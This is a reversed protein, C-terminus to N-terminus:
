DATVAVQFPVGLAHFHRQGCRAKLAESRASSEFDNTAKTERVSYVTAADGAGADQRDDRPHAAANPHCADVTRMSGSRREKEALFPM